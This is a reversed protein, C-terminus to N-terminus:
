PPACSYTNVTPPDVVRCDGGYVPCTGRTTVTVEWTARDLQYSINLGYQNWDRVDCATSEGSEQIWHGTRFMRGAGIPCLHRDVRDIMIIRNPNVIPVAYFGSTSDWGFATSYDVISGSDVQGWRSEIYAKTWVLRLSPAAVALAIAFVITVFLALWLLRRRSM